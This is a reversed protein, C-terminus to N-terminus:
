LQSEVDSETRKRSPRMHYTVVRWAWPVAFGIVASWIVWGVGFVVKELPSANKLLFVVGTALNALFGAAVARNYILNRERAHPDLPKGRYPKAVAQLVAPDFEGRKWWEVYGCAFAMAVAALGCVYAMLSILEQNELITKGLANILLTGFGILALPIGTSRNM